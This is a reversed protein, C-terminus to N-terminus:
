VAEVVGGSARLAAEWSDPSVSTDADIRGGGGATLQRIYVVHARSHVLELTTEDCPSPEWVELRDWTGSAQLQAVIARLRDPREPHRHGTDHRLFAESYALGTRTERQAHRTARETM